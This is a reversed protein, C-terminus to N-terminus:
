GIFVGKLSGQNMQQKEQKDKRRECIQLVLAPIGIWTYSYCHILSVWHWCHQLWLSLCGFPIHPHVSLSNWNGRIQHDWQYPLLKHMPFSVKGCDGIDRMQKARPYAWITSKLLAQLEEWVLYIIHRKCHWIPLKHTNRALEHTNWM